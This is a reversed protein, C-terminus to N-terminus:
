CVGFNLDILQLNGDSVHVVRHHNDLRPQIIAILSRPHFITPILRLIQQNCFYFGELHARRGHVSLEFLFLVDLLLKDIAAVFEFAFDHELPASDGNISVTALQQPRM